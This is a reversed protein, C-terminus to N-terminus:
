DQKQRGIQGRQLTMQKSTLMASIGQVSKLSTSTTHSASQSTARKIKQSSFMSGFKSGISATLLPKRKAPDSFFEHEVVEKITIRELHNRNLCKGILDCLQPNMDVPYVM